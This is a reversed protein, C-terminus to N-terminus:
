LAMFTHLEHYHSDPSMRFVELLSAKDTIRADFIRSPNSICSDTPTIALSLETLRDLGNSIFLKRRPFTECARFVLLEGTQYSVWFNM